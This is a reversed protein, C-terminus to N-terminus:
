SVRWHSDATWEHDKAGIRKKLEILETTHTFDVLKM